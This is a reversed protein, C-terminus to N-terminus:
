RIDAFRYIDPANEKIKAILISCDLALLTTKDIDYLSITVSLLFRFIRLLLSHLNRTECSYENVTEM